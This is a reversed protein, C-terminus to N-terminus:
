RRRALSLALAFRPGQPKLQDLNVDSAINELPNLVSTPINLSKSFRDAIGPALARGGSLYITDIGRRGTESNYFALSRQVEKLVFTEWQSRAEEGEEAGQGAGSAAGARTPMRVSRVLLLGGDRYAAFSLTCCGIDVVAVAGGDLLGEEHIENMLSLPAIDVADPEVGAQCVLGVHGDIYRQEVAALLVHMEDTGDADNRPLTQFDLVFDSAGFPVHKKAEWGISEALSPGPMKPFTVHKISVSPGEVATVLQVSRGTDTGTAKLVSKVADVRAGAAGPDTESKNHSPFSIETMAIGAIRVADGSHLLRVAKVSESGVDLGTVARRSGGFM